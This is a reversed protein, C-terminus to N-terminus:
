SQYGQSHESPNPSDDSRRLQTQPIIPLSESSDPHIWGMKHPHQPIVEWHSPPYSDVTRGTRRVLIKGRKTHGTVIGTSVINTHCFKSRGYPTLRVKAGVPFLTEIDDM